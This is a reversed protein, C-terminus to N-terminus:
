EAAEPLDDLADIQRKMSKLLCTADTGCADRQRLWQRQLRGLPDVNAADSKFQDYANRYASAVSRDFAALQWSGCITRETSTVARACDFSAQPRADAPLHRLILLTEGYWRLVMRGATDLYLWSGQVGTDVLGLGGQWLGDSCRISIVDVM